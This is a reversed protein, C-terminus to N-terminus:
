PVYKNPGNIFPMTTVPQCCMPASCSAAVSKLALCTVGLKTSPMATAIVMAGRDMACATLAPWTPLLKPPPSSTTSPCPMPVIPCRSKKSSLASIRCSAFQNVSPKNPAKKCAMLLCNVPFAWACAKSHAVWGQWTIPSPPPLRPLTTGTM